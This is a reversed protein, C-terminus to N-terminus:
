PLLPSVPPATTPVARGDGTLFHWGCWLYAPHEEPDSLTGLILGMMAAAKRHSEIWDHCSPHLLLGNSPLGLRPDRTGGMRRPNRHHFHAGGDCRLGCRDCRGSTRRLIIQRVEPTFEGAKKM